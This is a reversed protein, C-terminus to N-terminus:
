KSQQCSWWSTLEKNYVCVIHARLKVSVNHSTCLIFFLFLKIGHLSGHPHVWLAATLKLPPVSRFCQAVNHWMWMWLLGLSRSFEVRSLRPPLGLRVTRCFLSCRPTGSVIYRLPWLTGSAKLTSGVALIQKVKRGWWFDTAEFGCRCVSLCDCITNEKSTVIPADFFLVTWSTIHFYLYPLLILKHHLFVTSIHLSESKISNNLM